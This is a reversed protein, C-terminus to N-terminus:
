QPRRPMRRPYPAPQSKPLPHDNEAAWKEREHDSAYFRLWILPNNECYATSIKREALDQFSRGFGGLVDEFNRCPREELGIQGSKLDVTARLYFIKHPEAVPDTTLIKM